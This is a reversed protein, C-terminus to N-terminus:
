YTEYRCFLTRNEEDRYIKVVEREDTSSPGYYWYTVTKRLADKTYIPKLFAIYSAGYHFLYCTDVIFDISGKWKYQILCLSDTLPEVIVRMNCSDASTLTPTFHESTDSYSERDIIFGKAYGYQGNVGGYIMLAWINGTEIQNSLKTESVISDQYARLEAEGDQGFGVTKTLLLLILSLKFKMETSIAANFL